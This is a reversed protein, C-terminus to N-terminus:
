QKTSMVVVDIRPGSSSTDDLINLINERQRIIKVVDMFPLTIWLKTLEDVVIYTM